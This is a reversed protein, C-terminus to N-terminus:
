ALARRIQNQREADCEIMFSDAPLEWLMLEADEKSFLVADAITEMDPMVPKTMRCVGPKDPDFWKVFVVINHYPNLVGVAYTAETM